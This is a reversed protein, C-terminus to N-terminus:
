AFKFHYEDITTYVHADSMLAQMAQEVQGRNFQGSLKNHVQTRECPLLLM